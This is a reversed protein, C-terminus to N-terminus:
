SKSAVEVLTKLLERVTNMHGSLSPHLGDSLYNWAEPEGEGMRIGKPDVIGGVKGAVLERLQEIDQDNITYTYIPNEALLQSIVPTPTLWVTPNDVQDQLITHITNLNEWTESLPLLTRDPAINLRQVDFTGLSVFVWDPQQILVDRDMRRLAESTTDYAMGSNIFTFDPDEMSIELLHKFIEFWGQIDETSSDGFAVITEEGDFPLKDVLDVIEDEKLLELAAQKANEELNQRFLQLEEPTIGLLKSEADLDGKGPFLPFRKETNFFPVMFQELVGKEEESIKKDAM